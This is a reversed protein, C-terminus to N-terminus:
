AYPEEDGLMYPLCVARPTGVDLTLEGREYPSIEVIPADGNHGIGEVGRGGPGPRVVGAKDASFYFVKAEVFCEYVLKEEEIVWQVEGEERFPWGRGPLDGGWIGFDAESVVILTSFPIGAM